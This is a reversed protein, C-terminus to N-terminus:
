DIIFDAKPNDALIQKRIADFDDAPIDMYHHNRKVRIDIRRIGSETTYEHIYYTKM